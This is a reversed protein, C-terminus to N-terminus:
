VYPNFSLLIVIFVNCVAYFSIGGGAMTGFSHLSLVAQFLIIQWQKSFIITKSQDAASKPYKPRECKLIHLSFLLLLRCSLAMLFESKLLLCKLYASARCVCMKRKLLWKGYIGNRYIVLCFCVGAALKFILASIFRKQCILSASHALNQLFTFSFQHNSCHMWVHDNIM